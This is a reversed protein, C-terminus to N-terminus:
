PPSPTNTTPTAPASLLIDDLKRPPNLRVFYLHSLPAGPDTAFTMQDVLTADFEKLWQEITQHRIALVLSGEIFICHIGRSRVWEPTDDPLIREVRGHGWPQWMSPESGGCITAYGVVAESAAHRTAFERYGSVSARAAYYADLVKLFGCHPLARARAFVSPPIFTRGCDYMVFALTAAMVALALRRWWRQRVLSEMGPLVLLPTFLLVYYPDILRATEITGVKALFVLLSLWPTWRLFFFVCFTHHSPATRRWNRTAVFSVIAVTMVGLGIGASSGNQARRLLGLHEFVAFHSGLPTQVFREMWGNWAAAWPFFPPALNQILLYLANVLIRVVGWFSFPSPLEQVSGWHWWIHPGPEPVYGKWSGTYHQNLLAMPVFSALLCLGIVGATSIPRSLLLRCSPLVVVACPLLLLINTPKVATMLSAALLALWLDGIRGGARARLALAIAALVYVAALADNSTSCAQLVFTCGCALLWCWWWAVQPKVQMQRLFSFSIGPLLCFSIINPLFVWRDSRSILMLPAYLWEYGVGALNQRSDETRIWHWGSEHLWHFVRPIRYANSDGNEPIACLGSALCLLAITFFILPAPRSFRRRLKRWNPWHFGDAPWWNKKFVLAIAITAALAVLYGSSNLAHCASLIWGVACLWASLLVWLTVLM